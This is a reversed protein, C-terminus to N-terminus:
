LREHYELLIMGPGGLIHDCCRLVVRRALSNLSLVVKRLPVLGVIMHVSACNANEEMRYTLIQYSRSLAIIEDWEPTWPAIPKLLDRNFLNQASVDTRVDPEDDSEDDSEDFEDDLVSSAEDAAAM